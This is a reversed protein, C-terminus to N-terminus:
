EMEAEKELDELYSDLDFYCEDLGDACPPFIPGDPGGKVGGSCDLSFTCYKCLVEGDLNDIIKQAESM